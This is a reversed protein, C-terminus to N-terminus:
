LPVITHLPPLSIRNAPVTGVMLTFLQTVSLGQSPRALVPLSKTTPDHYDDDNVNHILQKIIESLNKQKDHEVTTKAKVPSLILRGEESSCKKESSSCM